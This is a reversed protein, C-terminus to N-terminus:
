GLFPLIFGTEKKYDEFSEKFHEALLRDEAKARLLFLPLEILIVAPIIIYGMLAIGVGLDSLIQSLYQPHRIYKYLGGRKLIHGKFILIDQSYFEGLQKFTAVQIWSFLIFIILGIVRLELYQEKIENSLVGLNFIAAITLILVLAAFNPPVKQLYTKPKEVVNSLKSKMGQKAASINASMSVFLNIAVIINIPDM